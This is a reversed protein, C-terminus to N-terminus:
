LTLFGWEAMPVLTSPSSKTPRSGSRRSRRSIRSRSMAKLDDPLREWVRESIYLTNALMM